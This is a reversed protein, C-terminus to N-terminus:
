SDRQVMQALPHSRYYRPQQASRLPKLMMQPSGLDAEV